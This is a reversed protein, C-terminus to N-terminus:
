LFVVWGKWILGLNFRDVLVRVGGGVVDGQFRLWINRNDVVQRGVWGVGGRESLSSKLTLFIHHDSIYLFQLVKPTRPM